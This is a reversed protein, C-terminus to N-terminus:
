VAAAWAATWAAQVDLGELAGAPAEAIQEFVAREVAYCKRVHGAVAAAIATIETATLTIWGNAGKWTVDPILGGTIAVFAGTVKMQSEPDTRVLTEGVTVGAVEAQQRIVALAAWKAQRLSLVEDVPVAVGDAAEVAAAWADLAARFPELSQIYTMQGRSREVEGADNQWQVARVDAPLFSLDLGAFGRGDVSVFGDKRIITVQMSM